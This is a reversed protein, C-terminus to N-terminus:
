RAAECEQLKRRAVQVWNGLAGILGSTSSTSIGLHSIRVGDWRSTYRGGAQDISRGIRHVADNRRAHWDRWADTLPEPRRDAEIEHLAAEIRDAEARIAALPVALRAERPRSM